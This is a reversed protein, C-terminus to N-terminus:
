TATGALLRWAIWNAVVQYRRLCATESSNLVLNKKLIIRWNYTGLQLTLSSKLRWFKWQKRSRYEQGPRFDVKWLQCFLFHELQRSPRYGRVEDLPPTLTGVGFNQQENQSLAPRIDAKVITSYLNLYGNRRDCPWLPAGRAQFDSTLQVTQGPRKQITLWDVRFWM